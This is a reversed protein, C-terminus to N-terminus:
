YTAIGLNLALTKAFDGYWYSLPQKPHRIALNPFWNCIFDLEDGDAQIAVVSDALKAFRRDFTHVHYQIDETRGEDDDHKVTMYLM